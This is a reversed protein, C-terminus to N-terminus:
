HDVLPLQHDTLLRCQHVANVNNPCLLNWINYKKRKTTDHSSSLTGERQSAYAQTLPVVHSQDQVM